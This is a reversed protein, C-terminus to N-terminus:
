LLEGLWPFAFSFLWGHLLVAFAFAGGKSPRRRLAFWWSWLVALFLLNIGAMAETYVAGQYRVGDEWGATFLYITFASAVALLFSFRMPLSELRSVRLQYFNLLFFTGIMLPPVIWWPEAWRLLEVAFLEPFCVLLPLPSLITPVGADCGKWALATCVSTVLTLILLDRAIAISSASEMRVGPHREVLLHTLIGAIALTFVLGMWPVSILTLATGAVIVMLIVFAKTSRSGSSLRLPGAPPTGFLREVVLSAPIITAPIALALGLSPILALTCAVVAVAAMLDKLRFQPRPLNMM